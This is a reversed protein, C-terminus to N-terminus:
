RRRARRVVISLTLLGIASLELTGPLPVARLEAVNIQYDSIKYFVDYDWVSGNGSMECKFGFCDSNDASFVAATNMFEFAARPHAGDTLPIDFWVTAIPQGGLMGVTSFLDSELWSLGKFPTISPASIASYQYGYLDHIFMFGNTDVSNAPIYIGGAVSTDVILSASISAPTPSTYQGSYSILFLAARAPACLLLALLAALSFRRLQAIAAM